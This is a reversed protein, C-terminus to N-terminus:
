DPEPQATATFGNLVAAALACGLALFTLMAKMTNKRKM